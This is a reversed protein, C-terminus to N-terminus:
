QKNKAKQEILERRLQTFLDCRVRQDNAASCSKKLSKTNHIPTNGFSFQYYEDLFKALWMQTPEDLEHLYELSDVLHRAAMKFNSKVLAPHKKM